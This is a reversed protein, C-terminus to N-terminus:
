ENLVFLGTCKALKYNLNYPKVFVDDAVGRSIYKNKNKKWIIPSFDVSEM